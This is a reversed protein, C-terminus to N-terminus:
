NSNLYGVRYVEEERVQTVPVGGNAPSRSMLTIDTPPSYPQTELEINSRSFCFSTSSFDGWESIFIAHEQRGDQLIERNFFVGVDNIFPGGEDCSVEIRMGTYLEEEYKLVVYEGRYMGTVDWMRDNATLSDDSDRNTKISNVILSNLLNNYSSSTFNGKRFTEIGMYMSVDPPDRPDYYEECVSLSLNQLSTYEDYSAERTETYIGSTIICDSAEIEGVPNVSCGYVGRYNSINALPSRNLETCLLEGSLLYFSDCPDTGECGLIPFGPYFGIRASWSDGTRNEYSGANGDEIEVRSPHFFSPIKFKTYPAVTFPLDECIGSHYFGIGRYKEDFITFRTPDSNSLGTVTISETCVNVIEVFKGRDTTQVPENCPFSIDTTECDEMYIMKPFGKAADRLQIDAEFPDIQGDTLVLKNRTLQGLEVGTEQLLGGCNDYYTEGSYALCIQNENNIISM